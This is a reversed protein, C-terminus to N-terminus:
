YKYSESEHLTRWANLHFVGVACMDEQLARGCSIHVLTVLAPFRSIKLACKYALRM